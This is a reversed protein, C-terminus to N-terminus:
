SIKFRKGWLKILDIDEVSSDFYFARKVSAKVPIAIDSLNNTAKPLGFSYGNNSKMQLTNSHSLNTVKIPQEGWNEFALEIKTTNKGARKVSALRVHVKDNLQELNSVVYENSQPNNLRTEQKTSQASSLAKPKNSKAHNQDKSEKVTNEHSSEEGAITIVSLPFLLLAGLVLKNM